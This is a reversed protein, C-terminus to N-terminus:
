CRLRKVLKRIEEPMDEPKMTDHVKATGARVATDYYWCKYRITDLTKQMAAMQKEVIAKRKLLMDYRQTLTSDGRICWDIFVKIDRIPMGASKLCGITGLWNLDEDTFLRIGGATRGVYPLLGQNDYYRLTSATVGVKAAAEGITYGM